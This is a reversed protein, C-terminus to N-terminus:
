QSDSEEILLEKLKALRPDIISQQSEKAAEEEFEEESLVKWFSGQPLENSEEEEPTLVRLPIELLINDAVSEDLSITNGEIVLIEDLREEEKLMQFDELTQFIEDVDISMPIAVPTLSRSSPLTITYQMKYHLIYEKADMRIVGNVSIKSIDLIEKERKQLAEKLDLEAEIPLCIDKFKNLEQLSWKM